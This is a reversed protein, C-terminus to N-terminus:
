LEWSLTLQRFDEGYSDKGLYAGLSVINSQWPFSYKLDLEWAKSYEVLGTSQNEATKLTLSVVDANDRQWHTELFHSSGPTSTSNVRQPQMAWHGM